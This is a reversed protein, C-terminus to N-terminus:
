LSFSVKVVSPIIGDHKLDEINEEEGAHNNVDKDVEEADKKNKNKSKLVEFTVGFNDQYNGSRSALKAGTKKSIAGIGELL